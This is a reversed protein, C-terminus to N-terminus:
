GKMIRYWIAWEGVDEKDLYEDDPSYEGIWKAPDGTFVRHYRTLDDDPDCCDIEKGMITISLSNNKVEGEFITKELKIDNKGPKDSVKYVGKDPLRLVKKRSSDKDPIVESTFVLEGDGKICPDMDNLIRIKDVIVKIKQGHIPQKETLHIEVNQEFGNVLVIMQEKSHWEGAEAKIFYIDENIDALRFKGNRDTIVTVGQLNNVTRVFVKGDLVLNGKKDILVGNLTGAGHKVVITMGAFAAFDNLGKVAAARAIVNGENVSKKVVIEFDLRIERTLKIGQKLQVKACIKREEGPKLTFPIYMGREQLAQLPVRRGDNGTPLQTWTIDLFEKAAQYNTPFVLYFERVEKFPNKILFIHEKFGMIGMGPFPAPSPSPSPALPMLDINRQAEYTNTQVNWTADLTSCLLQAEVKVCRHTHTELFIINHVSINSQTPLMVGGAPAINCNTYDDHNGGGGTWFLSLGLSYLRVPHTGMNWTRVNVSNNFPAVAGVADPIYLDDPGPTSPHNPHTLYVDPSEYWPTGDNVVLDPEGLFYETAAVASSYVPIPFPLPSLYNEDYEVLEAAFGLAEKMSIKLDTGTFAPEWQDAYLGEHPAPLPIGHMPEMKLARMWAHTFYGGLTEDGYSNETAGCAGSFTWNSAALGSFSSSFGGCYSQQMVVHLESAGFSMLRANLWTSDVVTTGSDINLQSVSGSRTGKGTFYLVATKSGGSAAIAFNFIATNLAAESLVTIVTAGSFTPAPSMTIPSGVAVTIHSVPYGYYQVLTYVMNELDKIPQYSTIGDNVIETIGSFLFAYKDNPFKTAM